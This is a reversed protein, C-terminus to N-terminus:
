LNYIMYTMKTRNTHCLEFATTNVSGRITCTMNARHQINAYFITLM